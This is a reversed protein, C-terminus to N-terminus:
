AMGGTATYGDGMGGGDCRIGEEGRDDGGFLSGLLLTEETERDVGAM